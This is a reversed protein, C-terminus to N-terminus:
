RTELFAVLTLDFVVFTTIAAGIWFAIRAGDIGRLMVGIWLLTLGLFLFFTLMVSTMM